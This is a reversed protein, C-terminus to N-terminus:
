APSAVPGTSTCATPSAPSVAATFGPNLPRGLRQGWRSSPRGRSWAPGKRAPRAGRRNTSSGTARRRTTCSIPPGGAPTPLCANRFPTLMRISNKPVPPAMDVGRGSQEQRTHVMEHQEDFPADDLEHFETVSFGHRKARGGNPWEPEVLAIDVSEQQFLVSLADQEDRIFQM